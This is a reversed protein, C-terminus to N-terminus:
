CRRNGVREVYKRSSLLKKESLDRELTDVLRGVADLKEAAVDSKTQSGTVSSLAGSGM